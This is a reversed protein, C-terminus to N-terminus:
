EPGGERDLCLRRWWLRRDSCCYTGRVQDGGVVLPKALQIAPGTETVAGLPIRTGGAVRRACVSADPDDGGRRDLAWEGVRAPGPAIRLMVIVESAFVAWTVWNLATAIGTWPGGFHSEQIVIIPITLSAAIVAPWELQHQVRDAREQRAERARSAAESEM